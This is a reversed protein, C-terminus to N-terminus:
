QLYYTQVVKRNREIHLVTKGEDTILASEIQSRVMVDRRNYLELIKADVYDKLKNWDEETDEMAQFSYHQSIEMQLRLLWEPKDNLIMSYYRLKRMNDEKKRSEGSANMVYSIVWATVTESAVVKKIIEVIM